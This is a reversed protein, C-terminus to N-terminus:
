INLFIRDEVRYNNKNTNCSYKTNKIYFHHFVLTQSLLAYIYMADYKFQNDAISEVSVRHLSLSYKLPKKDM